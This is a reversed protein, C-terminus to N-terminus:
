LSGLLDDVAQRDLETRAKGMLQEALAIWYSDAELGNKHWSGVEVRRVYDMGKRGSTLSYFATLLRLALERVFLESDHQEPVGNSRVGVAKGSTQRTWLYLEGM